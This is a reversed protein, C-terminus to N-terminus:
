QIADGVNVGDVRANADAAYAKSLEFGMPVRGLKKAVAPVTGTGSFPDLVCDGLNSTAAIMRAVLAEPLQNKAGTKRKEKFTGNIRPIYWTDHQETFGEPYEQPRLVWTDDPTKGGEAARSDKYVTQRASPVRIDKFNFTSGSPAPDVVFHFCHAHSRTFKTRCNNGFTYHWVVWNRLHFGMGRAMVKLECAFEDGIILWFSGDLALCHKVGRMWSYCWAEYAAPSLDDDHEDYEWGINYPPDAIGLRISRPKVKFLAKECAAHHVRGPEFFKM